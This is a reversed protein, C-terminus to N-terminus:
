NLPFSLLLINRRLDPWPISPFSRRLSEGTPEAALASDFTERASRSREDRLHTNLHGSGALHVLPSHSAERHGSSLKSAKIIAADGRPEVGVPRIKFKIFSQSVILNITPVTRSSLTGFTGSAMQKSTTRTRNDRHWKAM